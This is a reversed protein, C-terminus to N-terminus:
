RMTHRSDVMDQGLQRPVEEGGPHEAEVGFRAEYELPHERLMRAKTIKGTFIVTDVPFVEPSFIANYIHWIAIILFIMMAVNTHLAKAAPIMAGPLLKAAFVPFWLTLGTAIMLLGGAFIGWYEFKQKYDYRGCRAPRNTLGFYYRINEVADTFDKKNIIISEDWKLSLVGLFAILIHQVMIGSFIMGAARHMLRIRDIGGFNVVFWQSLEFDSFRQSLGTLALVTFVSAVSWHEIIRYFSFRTILIQESGNKMEGGKM